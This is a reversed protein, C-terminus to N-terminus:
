PVAWIRREEATVAGHTPEGIQTGFHQPRGQRVLWRDRAAAALWRAGDDGQHVAVEALEIARASDALTPGHHLIMAARRHDAPTCLQATAVLGRVLALRADDRPGVVGWDVPTARRDAQDAEYAAALRPDDGCVTLAAETPLDPVGCAWLGAVALCVM